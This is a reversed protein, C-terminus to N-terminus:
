YHLEVKDGESIKKFDEESIFFKNDDVNIFYEVLKPQSTMDAVINGSWSYNTNNSKAQVFGTKVNNNKSKLDKYSGNLHKLLSLIYISTCILLYLTLLLWNNDGWFGGGKIIMFGISLIISSALLVLFYLAIVQRIEKKLFIIDLSDLPLVFTNTM